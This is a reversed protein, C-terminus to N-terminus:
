TFFVSFIPCEPLYFWLDSIDNQDLVILMWSIWQWFLPPIQDMIFFHHPTEGTFRKFCHWILPPMSRPIIGISWGRFGHRGYDLSTMHFADFIQRWVVISWRQKDMWKPIILLVIVSLLVKCCSYSWGFDVLFYKAVFPLLPVPFEMCDLLIMLLFVVVTQATFPHKLLLLHAYKGLRDMVVLISDYGKSKSLRENFDM